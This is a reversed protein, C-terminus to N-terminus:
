RPLRQDRSAFRRGLPLRRPPHAAADDQLLFERRRQAVIGLDSHLSLDLASPLGALGVSQSAQPMTTPVRRVPGFSPRCPFPSYSHFFQASFRCQDGTRCVPDAPEDSGLEPLGARPHQYMAAIRLSASADDGLYLGTAARRREKRGVERCEGLHTSKGACGLCRHIPEVDQDVIGSNAGSTRTLGADLPELQPKRDIVEGTKQKRTSSNGSMLFLAGARITFTEDAPCCGISKPSTM